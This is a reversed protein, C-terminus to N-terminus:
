PGQVGGSHSAVTTHGPSQALQVWELADPSKPCGSTNPPAPPPPRPLLPGPVQHVEQMVQPWHWRVAASTGTVQGLPPPVPDGQLAATPVVRPGLDVPGAHSHQGPVGHIGRVKASTAEAPPRDRLGRSVVTDALSTSVHRLRDTWGRALTISMPRAGAAGALHRVGTM